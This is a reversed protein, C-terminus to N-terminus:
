ECKMPNQRKRERWRRRGKDCVCGGADRKERRRWWVNNWVELSDYDAGYPKYVMVLQDKQKAIKVHKSQAECIAGKGLRWALSSSSLMMTTTTATTTQVGGGCFTIHENSFHILCSCPTLMQNTTDHRRVKGSVVLSTRTSCNVANGTSVCIRPKRRRTFTMKFEFQAHWQQAKMRTSTMAMVYNNLLTELWQISKSLIFEVNITSLPWRFSIAISERWTM